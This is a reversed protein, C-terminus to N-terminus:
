LSIKKNKPYSVEFEFSKTEKGFASIALLWKLEGTEPKVKADSSEVLKVKIASNKSVPIQDVIEIQVPLNKNNRVVIDYAKKKSQKLGILQKECKDLKTIREIIINKDQGLSIQLTDETNKANIYGQGVYTDEFYIKSQGSLINYKAWDAVKAILYASTNMKPACFYAYEANLVHKTIEVRQRKGTSSINYLEPIKYERFTVNETVIVKAAKVEAFKRYSGKDKNNDGENTEYALQDSEYYNNVNQQIQPERKYNVFWTNLRPASGDVHARGTALTLSINKWEIGTNQFVKANFEMEVPANLGSTRLNYYPTWGAKTVYYNLSLNATSNSASSLEIEVKGSVKESSSKLSKLQNKLRQLQNNVKKTKEDIALLSGKILPLNSRYFILFDELDAVDLVAQGKIDNNKGILALEMENIQRKNKLKKLDLKLSEISDQLVKREANSEEKTLYDLSYTLSVIKSGPVKAQISNVDVYRSLDKIVITSVGTKVRVKSSRQIQAGREFVTVESIKSTFVQVAVKASVVTSLITLLFLIISNKKM